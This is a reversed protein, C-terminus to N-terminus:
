KISRNLKFKLTKLEKPSLLRWEGMKMKGLTIHMIRVRKLKLVEFGLFECMRRIQRNLGQKLVIKFTATGLKELTCPETVTNLIPVGTEMKYIFDKTLPKDVTVIYEKDHDNEKRLIKNVIDGDNTLLILGTSDKDLRGIPFIREKFNVAQVINRKEKLDTTSVIGHPKNYAIYYKKTTKRLPRGDLLVKDKFGVRNGPKCKRGNITIRGALILKDAERRSCIGTNSIYKNLSIDMLVFLLPSSFM